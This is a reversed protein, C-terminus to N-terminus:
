SGLSTSTVMGNACVEIRLEYGDLLAMGVLPDTDAEDVLLRRMRGDWEVDAEFVDFLCESGDALAARGIGRWKLELEAIHALPLDTCAHHPQQALM